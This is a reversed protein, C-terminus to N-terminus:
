NTLGYDHAVLKAFASYDTLHFPDSLNEINFSGGLSIAQSLLSQSTAADGLMQAEKAQVLMTVILWENSYSQTGKVENAYTVLSSDVTSQEKNAVAANGSAKNIAAAAALRIDAAGQVIMDTQLNENSANLKIFADAVQYAEESTHVVTAVAFASYAGAEVGVTSKTTLGGVIGGATTELSVDFVYSLAEAMEPSYKSSLTPKVTADFSNEIASVVLGIVLSSAIGKFTSPDKLDNILYQKFEGTDIFGIQEPSLKGILSSLADSVVQSEVQDIIGSNELYSAVYPGFKLISVSTASILSSVTSSTTSTIPNSPSTTSANTAPLSNSSGLLSNGSAPLQNAV